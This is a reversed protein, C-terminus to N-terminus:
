AMWRVAAHSQVVTWDAPDDPPVLAVDMGARRLAEVVRQAVILKEPDVQRPKRDGPATRVHKTM